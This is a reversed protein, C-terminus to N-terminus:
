VCFKGRFVLITFYPKILHLICSFPTHVTSAINGGTLGQSLSMAPPRGASYSLLPLKMGSNIHANPLSFSLSHAAAGEAALAQSTLFMNADVTIHYACAAAAFFAVATGWTGEREYALAASDV